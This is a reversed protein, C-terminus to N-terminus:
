TNRSENRLKATTATVFTLFKFKSFIIFFKSCLTSHISGPQKGLQICSPNSMVDNQHVYDFNRKNPWSVIQAVSCICLQFEATILYRVGVRQRVRCNLILFLPPSKINSLGINENM